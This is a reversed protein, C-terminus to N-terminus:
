GWSLRVGCLCATAVGAVILAAVAAGSAILVVSATSLAGGGASL